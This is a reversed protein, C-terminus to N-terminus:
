SNLKTELNKLKDSLEKIAEILLPILKEYKVTKINEGSKSVKNGNEDTDIDIPALTVIEPLVKEVEQASVGVQVDKNSYGLSKAKENEKYYYGNLSNVKQLANPIKGEFTKLREDSFFATIDGTCRFGGAASALLVTSNECVINLDTNNFGMYGMRTTGNGKFWEIFGANAATGQKIALRGVNTTAGGADFISSNVISANITSGISVTVTGTGGAPNLSIGNGAIIQNVGSNSPISGVGGVNVQVVAGVALQTTFTITNTNPDATYDIGNGVLLIGNRYVDVNTTAVFTLINSNDDAGSVTSRPSGSVTYLYKRQYANDDVYKKTAAHLNSTPAGNLTLFGTMTSGAIRVYGGGLSGGGLVDALVKASVSKNAPQPSNEVEAQSAFNVSITAPM